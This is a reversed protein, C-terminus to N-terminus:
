CIECGDDKADGDAAMKLRENDRIVPLDPIQQSWTLEAEVYLFSGFLFWFRSEKEYMSVLIMIKLVGTVNRAGGDWTLEWSM